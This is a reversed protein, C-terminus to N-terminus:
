SHNNLLSYHTLLLTLAAPRTLACYHTIQLKYNARGRGGVGGVSGVSVVSGVSGMSGVSGVSGELGWDSIGM